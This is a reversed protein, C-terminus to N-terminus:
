HLSASFKEKEGMRLGNASRGLRDTLASRLDSCFFREERRGVKRHSPQHSIFSAAHSGCQHAGAPGLAHPWTCITPAPCHARNMNTRLSQIPSVLHHQDANTWTMDHGAQPALRQIYRPLGPAAWYLIYTSTRFRSCCVDM